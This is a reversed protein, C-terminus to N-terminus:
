KDLVLGETISLALQGGSGLKGEPQVRSSARVDVINDDPLSPHPPLCSPLCAPSCTDEAFGLLSGM